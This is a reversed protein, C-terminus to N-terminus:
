LAAAEENKLQQDTQEQMAADIKEKIRAEVKAREEPTMAALDEKTLGMSRLIDEMMREAPSKKMYDLFIDKASRELSEPGSQSELGVEQGLLQARFLTDQSHQRAAAEAAAAAALKDREILDATYATANAAVQRLREAEREAIATATTPDIHRPLLSGLASYSSLADISM